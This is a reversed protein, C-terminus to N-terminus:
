LYKQDVNKAPQSTKPTPVRARGAHAGYVPTAPVNSEQM